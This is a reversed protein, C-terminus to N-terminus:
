NSKVVKKIILGNETNIEITYIGEPLQEMNIKIENQLYSDITQTTVIQGRFNVIKFGKVKLKSILIISNQSPNPCLTILDEQQQLDIMGTTGLLVKEISDKMCSNRAILKVTYPASGTFTYNPSAQNSGFSWNFANANTSINQFSYSSAGIQSYTFQPTVVTSNLNWTIISDLVTTSAITQMNLAVTSTLGSLYSSGVSSKQFISAYFVNSVLYTGEVSPHSEDAQYLDVLPYQMRHTKWAVGVPAVSTIFSDKFLMYSERLRAQMGNYTCVPPYFSCNSADGNKRGWTMYFLVKTCGNNKRISDVLLKAYPYSDTMVQSPSFSPEQSQGQIVVVDWPQSKIKALTTANTSHNQFTYGGPTNSDFVLTDGLSLALDAVMQPLNNVYTYSNGIFLVRKKLQAKIQYTTIVFLFLIIYNKM